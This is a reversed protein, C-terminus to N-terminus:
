PLGFLPAKAGIVFNEHRSYGCVKIAKARLMHGIEDRVENYPAGLAQSIDSTTLPQYRIVDTIDRSHVSM